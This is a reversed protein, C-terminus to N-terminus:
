RHAGYNPASARGVPTGGRDRLSRSRLGALGAAYILASSQDSWGPGRGRGERDGTSCRRSPRSTYSTSSCCLTRFAFSSNLAVSAETPVTSSSAWTSLGPAYSRGFWPAGSSAARVQGSIRRAVAVWRTWCSVRLARDRVRRPDDPWPVLCSPPGLRARVDLSWRPAGGVLGGTQSRCEGTSAGQRQVPWAAMTAHFWSARRNERELSGAMRRQVPWAAMTRSVLFGAPERTGAVGGDALARSGRGRPWGLGGGAPGESNGDRM